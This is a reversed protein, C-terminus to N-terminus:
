SLKKLLNNLKNQNFRWFHEHDFDDDEQIKKLLSKTDIGTDKASVYKKIIKLLKEQAEPTTDDDPLQKTEFFPYIKWISVLFTFIFIIMMITSLNLEM